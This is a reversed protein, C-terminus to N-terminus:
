LGSLVELYDSGTSGLRDFKGTGSVEIDKNITATNPNGSKLSWLGGSASTAEEYTYTFIVDDSGTTKEVLQFDGADLLDGDTNADADAFTRCTSNFAKDPGASVIAVVPYSSGVTTGALMGTGSGCAVAGKVSGHDWVCYGYDTGWPDKKSIGISLPILGGNTPHPLAAPDHWAVPEIVTDADCDGNNAQSAAAMVAVQAGILMQNEAVNQRTIKVSTALPGKMFTMVSAGLIGLVAVAGFIAFFVNGAERSVANKKPLNKPRREQYFSLLIGAVGIIFLLLFILLSLHSESIM